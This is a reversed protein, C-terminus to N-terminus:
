AGDSKAAKAPRTGPPGLIVDGLETTVTMFLENPFEIEGTALHAPTGTRTILEAFGAPSSILLARCGEPGAEVVHAVNM